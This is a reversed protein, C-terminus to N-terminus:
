PLAGICGFMWALGIALWSSVWFTVMIEGAPEEALGFWRDEIRLIWDALTM